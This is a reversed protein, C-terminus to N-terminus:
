AESDILGARIAWRVLAPLDSLGLKAMLRSRYTDVTKPSLHLQEGISASSHGKVVLLAIQRERASLPALPDDPDETLARMALDTVEPSLYRRGECVAQIARLLEASSSGKLVYGAAGLRVAEGVHRPAASMSLVICPTRADRRKLEALVELGNREGLHVDLLVADPEGRVIAAVAETPEAAEGVISHGASQLVSRLGERVVVHDEVLFLRSM